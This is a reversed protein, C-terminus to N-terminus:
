RINVELNVTLYTVFVKMRIINFKSYKLIRKKFVYMNCSMINHSKFINIPRVLGSTLAYQIYYLPPWFDTGM